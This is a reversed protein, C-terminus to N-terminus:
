IILLSQDPDIDCVNQVWIRPLLNSLPMPFLLRVNTPCEGRLKLATLRRNTRLANALEFVGNDDIREGLFGFM